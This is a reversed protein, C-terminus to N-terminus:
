YTDDANIPTITGYQHHAAAGLHDAVANTLRTVSCGYQPDVYSAGKAPPPFPNTACPPTGCRYSPPLHVLGDDLQGGIAGAPSTAGTGSQPASYNAPTANTGLALSGSFLQLATPTFTVNYAVNAGPAVTTSSPGTFVFQSPSITVSSIVLNSGGTNSVTVSQPASTTNILQNGFSLSAPSISVHTRGRRAPARRSPFSVAPPPPT